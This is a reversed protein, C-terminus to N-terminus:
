LLSDLDRYQAGADILIGDDVISVVEVGNDKMINFYGTFNTMAHAYKTPFPAKRLIDTSDLSKSFDNIDNYAFTNHKYEEKVFEWADILKKNYDSRINYFHLNSKFDFGIYVVRKAGMIYALHTASFGVNEAGILPGANSIPKPLLNPGGVVNINAISIVNWEAPFPWAQLEGHFVKNSGSKGFHGMMLMQSLHGSIYYDSELCVFSSNVGITLKNNLKEIQYDSLEAVQEGNGIIFITENKHRNNYDGLSNIKTEM